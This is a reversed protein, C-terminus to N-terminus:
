PIECNYNAAIEAPTRVSNWIRVEDIDGQFYRSNNWSGINFALGGTITPPTIPVFSNAPVGNVFFQIQAPSKSYTVAVHYWTNASFTYGAYYDTSGNVAFLLGTGDFLFHVSGLAWTNHM